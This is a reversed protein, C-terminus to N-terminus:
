AAAPLDQHLHDLAGAALALRAAHHDARGDPRRPYPPYLDWPRGLTFAIQGTPQSRRKHRGPTTMWELEAQWWNWLDREATYRSRRAALRGEVGLRRAIRDRIHPRTRHWGDQTLVILETQALREILPAPDTTAEAAEGLRAYLNGAALGLAHPTTFLDHTALDFRHHLNTLLQNRWRSGAGTPRAAGQARTTDIGGPFPTQPAITWTAAHRGEGPRVQAIWTDAALRILGVRATDRGIGALLALRRTDAEVAPTMAQLALLCLADLVRRDAPGGGRTWRGPSADARRQVAEVTAAIQEARPDFTPDDGAQREHTAVWRVAAQWIRGLVAEPSQQGHAPRPRRRSYDHDVRQTRAHEMGPATAVLPMLDHFHWHAAAAGLCIVYLVRSADARPALSTDLAARSKAPLPRRTGPLWPRGEDDTPLRLEAAHPASTVTATDGLHTNIRSALAVLQGPTTAPQTLTTLDGAIVRSAGGHRHPAGPPRLCGTTPNLLPTADLSPCLGQVSHAVDRVLQAEAPEALGIWVHRGGSPGSECVVHAIGAATLVQGITEADQRAQGDGGEHADLDLGVYHYRGEADALYMAWPGAPAPGAVPAQRPYSNTGDTAAVRVEPRSSLVATLRWAADIHTADRNDADTPIM